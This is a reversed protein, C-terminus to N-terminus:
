GFDPFGQGSGSDEDGPGAGFEGSEECRRERRRSGVRGGSGSVGRAAIEVAASLQAETTQLRTRATSREEPTTAGQALDEAAELAARARELDLKATLSRVDARAAALILTATARQAEPAARLQAEAAEVARRADALQNEAQGVAEPTPESPQGPSGGGGSEPTIGGTGATPTGGGSCAALGFGLIIALLGNKAM